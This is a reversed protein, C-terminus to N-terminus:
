LLAFEFFELNVFFASLTLYILKVFIKKKFVYMNWLFFYTVTLFDTLNFQNKKM